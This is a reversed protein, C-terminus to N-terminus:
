RADRGTDACWERVAADANDFMLIRYAAEYADDIYMDHRGHIDLVIDEIQERSRSKDMKVLVDILATVDPHIDNPM